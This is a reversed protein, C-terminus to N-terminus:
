RISIGKGAEVLGRAAQHVPSVSLDAAKVEWVAVPDFWVDPAQTDGFQPPLPTFPLGLPTPPTPHPPTPHPVPGRQACGTAGASNRALAPVSPGGPGAPRGAVLAGARGRRQGRAQYYPRPGELVHPRLTDALQALQEESFGTGLKSITQHSSTARPWLQLPGLNCPPQM